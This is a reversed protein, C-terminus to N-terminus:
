CMSSHIGVNSNNNFNRSVYEISKKLTKPHIKYKKYLENQNKTSIYISVIKKHCEDNENEYTHLYRNLEQNILTPEDEDYIYEYEDESLEEKLKQKNWKSNSWFYHNKAFIFLFSEYDEIDKVNELEIILYHYFDDSYNGLTAANITKKLAEYNLGIYELM